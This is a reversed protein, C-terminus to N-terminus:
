ATFDIFHEGEGAFGLPSDSASPDEDQNPQRRREQPTYGDGNGGGDPNAKIVSGEAHETEAITEERKHVAAAFGAQAAQQANQAAQQASNVQAANQPAAMYALQLDAPRIAM